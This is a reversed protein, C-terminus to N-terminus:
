RAARLPTSTRAPSAWFARAKLGVTELLQVVFPLGSYSDGGAALVRGDARVDLANIRPESGNDSPLDILTTGAEGFTPDVAGDPGLRMVMAGAEGSGAVLIRGDGDVTIATADTMAAAVAGASFTLDPAGTALMRTAFAHGDTTGSVLLSGDAQSTMSSCGNAEGLASEVPAIGAAGFSGDMVGAATLGVIRCQSESTTTVRYGAGPTREVFSRAEHDHLPGVFVGNEGFSPDLTGDALLRLVILNADSSGSVVIGGDPDQAVSNAVHLSGYNGAPLEFIGESGFTTDLSGSAELRYVVLTTLALSQNIRRGVMIVKGDPQRSADRVEISSLGTPTYYRDIQGAGTLEGAFHSGFYECYYSSYYCALEVDGGAVLANGDDLAEISWAQGGHETHMVIRGHDAFEADLNGPAALALPAVLGTAIATSPAIRRSATTALADLPQKM